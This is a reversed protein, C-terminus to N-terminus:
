QFVNRVPQFYISKEYYEEVIQHYELLTPTVFFQNM